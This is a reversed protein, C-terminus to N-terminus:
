GRWAQARLARPAVGFLEKVWRSFHFPTQFGCRYAVEGVTLGTERLMQAGRRTRTEWVFRIPTTGLHERFLKVLQARSVCAEAALTPLDVAHEGAQGIWELVRRLADPEETEGRAQRTASFVYEHLAALGLAEALGPSHEGTDRPLGLGLEMLQEFRRTVRVVAPARGCAEALDRGVVAPHVACWTHHTKQALSLQFFERGGPRFLGVEGAAVRRARGDVDVRAEGELVVVLQYDLQVRPGCTGGPEYIM